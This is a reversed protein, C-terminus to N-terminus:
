IEPVCRFVPGAVGWSNGVPKGEMETVVFAENWSRLAAEPSWFTLSATVVRRPPQVSADRISLGDMAFFVKSGGSMTIIGRLTPTFAGDVRHQALNTAHLTGTLEGAAIKGTLIGYVRGGKDFPVEEDIDTYVLELTGIRELRM